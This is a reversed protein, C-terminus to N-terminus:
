DQNMGLMLVHHLNKGGYTWHLDLGDGTIGALHAPCLHVAARDAQGSGPQVLCIPRHVRLHGMLSPCFIWNSMVEQVLIM